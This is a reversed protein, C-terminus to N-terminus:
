VCRSFLRHWYQSHALSREPTRGPGGLVPRYEKGDGSSSESAKPTEVLEVIMQTPAKEQPKKQKYPKQPPSRRKLFPVANKIDRFVERVKVRKKPSEPMEEQGQLPRKAGRARKMNELWRKQLEPSWKPSPKLNEPATPPLLSGWDEPICLTAAVFRKWFGSDLRYNAAGVRVDNIENAHCYLKLISTARRPNQRIKKRVRAFYDDAGKSVRAQLEKTTPRNKPLLKLCDRVLHRLEQSYENAPTQGNRRDPEVSDVFETKPSQRKKLMNHLIRDLDEIDRGTMFMWMIAAM